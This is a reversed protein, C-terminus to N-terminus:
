VKGSTRGIKNLETPSLTKNAVDTLPTAVTATVSHFMWSLKSTAWPIALQNIESEKIVPMVCYITPTGPLVPCEKMNPDDMVIVTKDENYGKVCPIQVNIIM